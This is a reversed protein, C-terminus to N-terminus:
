ALKEGDNWHRWSTLDHDLKDMNMMLILLFITKIGMFEYQHYGLFRIDWWIGIEQNEVDMGMCHKPKYFWNGAFHCLWHWKVMGLDNGTGYEALLHWSWWDHYGNTTNVVLGDGTMNGMIKWWKVMKMLRNRPPKGKIVLAARGTQSRRRPSGCPKAWGSKLWRRCPKLVELSWFHLDRDGRPRSLIWLFAMAAMAAMVM